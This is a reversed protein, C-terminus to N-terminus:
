MSGHSTPSDQSYLEGIGLQEHNAHYIPCWETQKGAINELFPIGCARGILSDCELHRSGGGGGSHSIDFPTTRDWCGIMRALSRRWVELDCLFLYGACNGGWEEDCRSM